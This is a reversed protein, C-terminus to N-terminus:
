SEARPNISRMPDHPCLLEQELVQRWFEDSSTATKGVNQFRSLLDHELTYLKDGDNLDRIWWKRPIETRDTHGIAKIEIRVGIKRLDRCFQVTWDDNIMAVDTEQTAGGHERSYETAITSGQASQLFLKARRNCLQLEHQM